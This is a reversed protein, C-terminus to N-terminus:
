RRIQGRLEGSPFAPTHVNVYTIGAKIAKVLARLDGAAFGQDTPGLVDAAVITGEAEGSPSAECAPKGGGGCLFVAVGGNVGRQGIHIHAFLPAGTLDDWELEYSIEGGRLRAEFDGDGPSNIPPVEQFGSLHADVRHGRSKKGSAGADAGLV